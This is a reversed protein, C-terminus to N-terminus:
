NQLSQLERIAQELKSVAQQVQQSWQTMQNYYAKQETSMGSLIMTNMTPCPRIKLNDTLAYKLTM